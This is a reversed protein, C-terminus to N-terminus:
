NHIFLTCSICMSENDEQGSQDVEKKWETHLNIRKEQDNLLASMKRVIQEESRTLGPLSTCFAAQSSDTKRKDRKSPLVFSPMVGHCPLTRSFIGKGYSGLKLLAVIELKSTVIVGEGSLVGTCKTITLDTAKASSLISQEKFKQAGTKKKFKMSCSATTTQDTM